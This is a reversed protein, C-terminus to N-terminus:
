TLDVDTKKKQIFQKSALSQFIVKLYLVFLFIHIVDRMTTSNFIQNIPLIQAVVANNWSQTPHSIEICFRNVNHRCFTYTFTSIVPM